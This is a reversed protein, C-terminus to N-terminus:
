AAEFSAAQDKGFRHRDYPVHRRDEVLRVYSHFNNFTGHEFGQRSRNGRRGVNRQLNITLENLHSRLVARREYDSLHRAVAHERDEPCSAHDREKDYKVVVAKAEFALEPWVEAPDPFGKLRMTFAELLYEFGEGHLDSVIDDMGFRSSGVQFVDVPNRPCESSQLLVESMLHRPGPSGVSFARGFVDRRKQQGVITRPAENHPLAGTLKSPDSKWDM